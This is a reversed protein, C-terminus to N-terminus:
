LLFSFGFKKDHLLIPIHEVVSINIHFNSKHINENTKSIYFLHLDVKRTLIYSYKIKQPETFFHLSHHSLKSLQLTANHNQM